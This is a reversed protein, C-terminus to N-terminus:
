NLQYIPIPRERGKVKFEGRLVAGEVDGGIDKWVADSALIQSDLEKNLGEIRSAVNVVDGIVTYEERSRSGVNGTVAEGCHLGIGVRTPPIKNQSTLEELEKLIERAATVASRTDKGNSLPAGFVAMFGDGLFKNVIGGNRNVADIMFEFLSNLFQVVEEPKRGESYTTFNRIDLFMVCVHRTEGTMSTQQQQLLRDVVAPSVHRGFVMVVENREQILQFARKVQQRVRSSVLGAVLGAMVLMVSKTFYQIPDALIGENASAPTRSIEYLALPFFEAAAAVGTFVSLKFDLRLSSAIIFFFYVFVPPLTLAVVPRFIHGVYYMVFTPISIEMLATAYHFWGPLDVGAALARDIRRVVALEILLIPVAFGYFRIRSIQGHFREKMFAPELFVLLTFAVLATCVLGAVILSRLREGALAERSLLAEFSQPKNHTSVAPSCLM